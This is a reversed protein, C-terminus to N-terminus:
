KPLVAAFEEVDGAGVAFPQLKIFYHLPLPLVFINEYMKQESDRKIYLLGRRSVLEGHCSIFTVCENVGGNAISMELYVM